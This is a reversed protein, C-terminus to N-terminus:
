KTNIFKVTTVANGNTTRLFYVSTALDNLAVNVETALELSLSKLVRGNLDVIELKRSVPAGLYRVQLNGNAVSVVPSPETEIPTVATTMPQFHLVFRNRTTTQNLQATYSSTKLNHMQGNDELFVNVTPDLTNEALTFTYSGSQNADIGVPVSVPGQLSPLVQVSLDDNGLLSYLALAPNGKLKRADLARDFGSTAQPFFAIQAENFSNGNEVKLTIASVANQSRLFTGSSANRMTNRFTMGSSATAEVFFGQASPIVYGSNLANLTQYDSLNRNWIYISGTIDPNQTVSIVSDLLIGSPYPNGVLNWDTNSPNNVINTVINGNTPVGRFTADGGGYVVYGRGNPMVNTVPNGIGQVQWTQNSAVFMNHDLGGIQSLLGGTVPTSWLNAATNSTNNSNRFVVVQGNVDGGGQPTGVGHLLQSASRLYLKNNTTLMGAQVLVNGVVELTDAGILNVSTPNDIRLGPFVTNPQSVAQTLMITQPASGILRIQGNTGSYTIGNTTIDGQVALIKNSGLNISGSGTHNVLLEGNVTVTSTGSTPQFTVGATGSNILHLNNLQCVILENQGAGTDAKRIQQTGTSARMTITGTLSYGASNGDANFDGLCILRNGNDTFVSPSTSRLRFDDNAQINSSDSPGSPAALTVSGSTKGDTQFRFVYLLNGNLDITQNASGGLIMTWGTTVTSTTVTGLYSINGNVTLTTFPSGASQTTTNELTLNGLVTVSGPGFNKQANRMEINGYANAPITVVGTNQEFALTSGTSILNLLPMTTNKFRVTAMNNVDLRASGLTTLVSDLILEYALVSDGLNVRANSGGVTWNYNLVIPSGARNRINFVANNINFSVPNTGSGDYNEGWTATDNLAGTAKSYYITPIYQQPTIEVDDIGLVDDNSVSNFDQWRVYFTAGAPITTLASGFISDVVLTRNAPANGDLTFAQTSTTALSVPSPKGLNVLPVWVALPDTFSTANLSFQVALSDNANMDRWQELAYAIKLQTIPTGTNNVLKFGYTAELSGSCGSGISRETSGPNGLVFADGGFSTNGNLGGAYSAPWQNANAGTENLYFGRPFDFRLNGGFQAPLNDFNAAQQTVNMTNLSIADDDDLVEIAVRNASGIILGGASNYVSDLTVILTDTLDNIADNVVNLVVTGTTNGAQIIIFPQPLSFDSATVSNGSVSVRITDTATAPSALTATLTIAPSSSENVSSASASLSAAPRTDNFAQVTINDLYFEDRDTTGLSADLDDLFWRLYYDGGAALVESPYIDVERRHYEWRAVGAAATLTSQAEMSPIEVFNNLSDPSHMFGARIARNQDNYFRVEYSIRLRTCNNALGNTLRLTIAGATWQSQTMGVYVMRNGNRICSAIGNTTSGNYTASDTITVNAGGVNPTAYPTRLNLAQINDTIFSWADADLQGSVPASHSIANGSARNFAGNNVNNVTTSFDVTVPTSGVTLQAMAQASALSFLLLLWQKLTNTRM